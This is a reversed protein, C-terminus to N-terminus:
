DQPLDQGSQNDNSPEDEGEAGETPTVVNNDETPRTIFEAKFTTNSSTFESMDLKYTASKKEAAELINPIAQMIVDYTSQRGLYIQNGDSCILTVCANKDFVIDDVKIDYKQILQTLELIDGFLNDDQVELVSGVSAKTFELGKITPIDNMIESRSAIIMGDKDFYMYDDMIKINGVISKERVKITITHLNTMEVSFSKVFAMEPMDAFTYHLRFLISYQDYGKTQFADIIEQESYWSNGTIVFNRIRCKTKLFYNGGLALLFVIFVFILLKYRFALGMKLEIENDPTIEEEELYEELNLDEPLDNSADKKKKGFM